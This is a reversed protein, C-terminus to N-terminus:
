KGKFPSGGPPVGPAADPPTTLPSSLPKVTPPKSGGNCGIMFGLLGLLLLSFLAQKMAPLDLIFRSVEAPVSWASTDGFRLLLRM